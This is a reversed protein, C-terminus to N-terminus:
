ARVADDGFNERIWDRLPVDDDTPDFWANASTHAGLLQRRVPSQSALLGDLSMESKPRLWRYSYGVTLFVRTTSSVNTSAAHWLRRDFVIADGASALIEMAGDPQEGPGVTPRGRAQSGPVVCLNGMGPATLDTLFYGVKVSVRPQPETELDLNMRNNDQHWGYAGSSAQPPAPPTVLLQTHFVQIHWGLVGWVRPFTAAHDVLDLFADDLGILDHRNLTHFATVDPQTRYEADLARAVALVRERTPEDLANPVMVFGDREFTSREDDTLRQGIREAEV